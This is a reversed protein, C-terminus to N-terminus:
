GPQSVAKWKREKRWNGQAQLAQGRWQKKGGERRKGGFDRTCGHRGHEAKSSLLSVEETEWLHQVILYLLVQGIFLSQLIHHLSVFLLSMLFAFNEALLLRYTHPTATLKPLLTQSSSWLDCVQSSDM